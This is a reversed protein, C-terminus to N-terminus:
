ETASRLCEPCLVSVEILSVFGAKIWGILRDSFLIPPDILFLLTIRWFTVSWKLPVITIAISWMQDFKECHIVRYLSPDATPATADENIWRIRDRLNSWDQEIPEWRSIKNSGDWDPDPRRSRLHDPGPCCSDPHSAAGPRIANSRRSPCPLHLALCVTATPSHPDSCFSISSLSIFRFEPSQASYVWHSILVQGLILGFVECLEVTPM